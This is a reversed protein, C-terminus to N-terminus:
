RGGGAVDLPHPSEPMADPKELGALAKLRSVMDAGLLHEIEDADRDVHSPAIDAYHVLYLEWLRHNRTLRKATELGTATLRIAGVRERSIWGRREARRVVREVDREGWGRRSLLREAEGAGWGSELEEYLMRLLHQVDVRRQYMRRIWWGTALGRRSGFLLSVGFFGAQVMVITAGAPADPTVASIGAGVGCGVAGLVGSLGVMVRLDDSWFRASAPPIILLAIVLILGVAQLGATIVVIVLSMLGLDIRRVPWGSVRAYDADFCLLRLEKFLLGCVLLAGGAAIALLWADGALMSATKGYIFSELGASSATRMGQVLGLLVVGVGFYVSLVIGLATDEKLRTASRIGVVSFM